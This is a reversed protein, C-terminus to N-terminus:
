CGCGEKECYRTRMDNGNAGFEDVELEIDHGDLAALIAHKFCLVEKDTHDHFVVEFNFSAM